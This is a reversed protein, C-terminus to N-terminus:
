LRLDLIFTLVVLVWSDSTPQCTHDCLMQIVTNVGCRQNNYFDIFVHECLDPKSHAASVLLVNADSYRFQFEVADVKKVFKICRSM